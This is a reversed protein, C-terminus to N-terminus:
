ESMLMKAFFEYIQDEMPYFQGWKIQLEVNKLIRSKEFVKISIQSRLKKFLYETFQYQITM